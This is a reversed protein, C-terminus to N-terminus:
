KVKKAVLIWALPIASENTNIEQAETLSFNQSELSECLNTFTETSIAAHVMAEMRGLYSPIEASMEQLWGIVETEAYSNINQQIKAVTNYLTQITKGAVNIGFQDMIPELSKFVPMFEALAHKAEESNQSALASFGAEFMKIALPLFNSDQLHMIAKANDSCESFISGKAHHIILALQGEPKVLNAINSIYEVGAYEIGFQSTVIDFSNEDFPITRVDTELINVHPFRTKLSILAQKSSDICTISINEHVEGLQAADLVAGNGSAVDLIQTKGNNNIAAPFYNRWFNQLYPHNVGGESFSASDRSGVWYKNWHTTSQQISNKNISM